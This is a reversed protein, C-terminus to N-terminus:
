EAVVRMRGRERCSARGIEAAAARPTRRRREAERRAEAGPGAAMEVGVTGGVEEGEGAAPEVEAAGVHADRQRRLHGVVPVGDEFIPLACTQVGTVLDDRIG